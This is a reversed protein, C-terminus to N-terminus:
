AAYVTEMTELIRKRRIPNKLGEKEVIDVPRNLMKELDQGLDIIDFLSIDASEFFSVVVDVDSKEHFDDRIASGFFSFERIAYQSCLAEIARRDIDIGNRHLKAFTEM